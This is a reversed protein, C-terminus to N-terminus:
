VNIVNEGFMPTIEMFIHLFNGLLLLMHNYCVLQICLHFYGTEFSAKAAMESSAGGQKFLSWPAREDM